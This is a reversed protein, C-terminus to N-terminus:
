LPIPSLPLKVHSQTDKDQSPVDTPTLITLMGPIDDWTLNASMISSMSVTSDQSPSTPNAPQQGGSTHPSLKSDPQPQQLHDQPVPLSDKPLDLSDELSTGSTSTCTSLLESDSTQTENPVSTPPPLTSESPVLPVEKNGVSFATTAANKKEPQLSPETVFETVTTEKELSPDSSPEKPVLNLGSFIVDGGTTTAPTSSVTLIPSESIPPKHEGSLSALVPLIRSAPQDQGTGNGSSLIPLHDAQDQHTGNESSLIPLHDAQDQHTGNGSSLIPLHDVQDQHTGNESSLIPLHDVQDQHTGNVPSLKPLQDVQDQGTSIGSSLIPLHDAQDQHTSNGSSLISLHDLQDQHTGNESSLIPLHDVQDQGTGNGSSLIPLQDVHSSNGKPVKKVSAIVPNSDNSEVDSYVARVYIRYSATTDLGDLYAKNRSPGVTGELSGNVYINFGTASNCHTADWQLLLCTPSYHSMHLSSPPLNTQQLNPEVLNSAATESTSNTNQQHVSYMTPTSTDVASAGPAPNGQLFSPGLPNGETSGLNPPTLLRNSDLLSRLHSSPETRSGESVLPPLLGPQMSHEQFVKLHVENNDEKIIKEQDMKSKSLAVIQKVPALLLPVKPNSRRALAGRWHKQITTAATHLTRGEMEEKWRTLSEVESLLGHLTEEQLQIVQTNHALQVQCGRLHHLCHVIYSEMKRQRLLSRAVVAKQDHSRARFGRWVSQIIRAACYQRKYERCAARCKGGRWWAQIVVAACGKDHDTYTDEITSVTSDTCTSSDESTESETPTIEPRSHLAPKTSYSHTVSLQTLDAPLPCDDKGADASWNTVMLPIHVSTSGFM